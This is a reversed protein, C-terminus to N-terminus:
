HREVEYSSRGDFGTSLSSECGEAVEGSEVVVETTGGRERKRKLIPLRLPM